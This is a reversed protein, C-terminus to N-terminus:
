INERDCSYLSGFLKLTYIMRKDMLIDM